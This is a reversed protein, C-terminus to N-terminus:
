QEVAKLHPTQNALALWDNVKTDVPSAGTPNQQPAARSRIVESALAPLAGAGLHPKVLYLRLAASVDERSTGANLLASAKIRLMTREAAPITTPILERVLDAGPTAAISDRATSQSASEPVYGSIQEPYPTTPIYGPSERSDRPTDGQKDGPSVPPSDARQGAKKRRWKERDAEVKEYSDQRWEHFNYGRQGQYEPRNGQYEGRYWLQAGVLSKAKAAGQPQQKVWWDPVFGDTGYCMSFAGARNWMGFAADGAMIVKPHSHADDSLKFHPM